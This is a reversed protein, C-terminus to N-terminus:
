YGAEYSIAHNIAFAQDGLAHSIWSLAVGWFLASLLMAPVIRKPPEGFAVAVITGVIPSLILPTLFAIGNLGFRQWIYVMRRNAKTFMRAPRKQRLHHIWGRRAKQGLLSFILVSMMMGGITLLTTEWLQLGSAAGTIPGFVFKFMSGFFVTCYKVFTEMSLRANGLSRVIIHLCFRMRM